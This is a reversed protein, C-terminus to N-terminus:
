LSTYLGCLFNRRLTGTPSSRGLLEVCDQQGCDGGGGGGAAWQLRSTLWNDSGGRDM